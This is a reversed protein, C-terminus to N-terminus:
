KSRLIRYATMGYMFSTGAVMYLLIYCLHELSKTAVLFYMVYGTVAFFLLIYVRKWQNGTMSVIVSCSLTAFRAFLLLGFILSFQIAGITFYYDPFIIKVIYAYLGVVVVGCGLGFFVDFIIRKRLGMIDGKKVAHSIQPTTLQIYSSTLFNTSLFIKLFVSYQVVTEPDTFLALYLNDGLGIGVGVYVHVVYPILAIIEKQSGKPFSFSQSCTARYFHISALLMYSTSAIIFSYAFSQSFYWVYLISLCLSFTYFLFGIAERAFSKTAGLYFYFHNGISVFFASIIYPMYVTMTELGVIALGVIISVLLLVAKTFLGVFADSTCFVEGRTFARFVYIRYGFDFLPVMLSFISIGFIYVTGESSPVLRGFALLPVLHLVGKCSYIISVSVKDRNM